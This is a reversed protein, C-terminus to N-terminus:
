LRRARALAEEYLKIARVLHDRAIKLKEKDGNKAVTSFPVIPPEHGFWVGDPKNKNVPLENSGCSYVMAHARALNLM